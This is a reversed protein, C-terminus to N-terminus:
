QTVRPLEGDLDDIEDSAAETVTSTQSTFIAGRASEREGRRVRNPTGVPSAYVFSIRFIARSRRYRPSSSDLRARTVSFEVPNKRIKTFQFDRPYLKRQEPHTRRIRAGSVLPFPINYFNNGKTSYSNSQILFVHPHMSPFLFTKKPYKIM